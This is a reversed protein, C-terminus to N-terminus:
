ADQVGTRKYKKLESRLTAIDENELVKIPLERYGLEIAVLYRNNGVCVKYFDGEKVCLLPNIIYGDKRICNKIKQYLESKRQGQPSTEM